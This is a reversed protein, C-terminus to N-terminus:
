RSYDCTVVDLLMRDNQDTTTTRLIAGTDLVMKDSTGQIQNTMRNVMKGKLVSIEGCPPTPLLIVERDFYPVLFGM